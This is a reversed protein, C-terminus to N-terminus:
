GVGALAQREMKKLHELASEKRWRLLWGNMRVPPPIVGTAAYREISRRCVGLERMWWQFDVFNESEKIAM